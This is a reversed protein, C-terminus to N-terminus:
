HKAFYYGKEQTNIIPLIPSENEYIEFLRNKVSKNSEEEYTKLMSMLDYGVSISSQPKQSLLKAANKTKIFRVSLTIEDHTNCYRMIGKLKERSIGNGIAIIGCHSFLTPLTIQNQIDAVAKKLTRGQSTIIKLEQGESETNIILAEVSVTYLGKDYDFGIATVLYEQPKNNCGCLMFLCLFLATIKKM